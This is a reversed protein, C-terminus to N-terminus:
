YPWLTQAASLLLYACSVVLVGVLMVRRPSHRDLVHGLYPAILASTVGAVSFGMAIAFRSGDGLEEALSPLFVGRSYAYFGTGLFGLFASVGVVVWGYFFPTPSTPPSSSPDGTRAIARAAPERGDKADTM